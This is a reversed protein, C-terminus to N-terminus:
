ASGMSWNRKSAATSEGSIEAMELNQMLDEVVVAHEMFVGDILKAGTVVITRACVEIIAGLVVVCWRDVKKGITGKHGVRRRVGQRQQRVSAHRNAVANKVNRGSL